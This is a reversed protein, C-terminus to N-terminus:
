TQELEGIVEYLLQVLALEYVKGGSLDLDAGRHHISLTQQPCASDPDAPFVSIDNVRSGDGSSM